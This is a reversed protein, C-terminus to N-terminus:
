LIWGPPNIQHVGVANISKPVIISGNLWSKSNSTLEFKVLNYNPNKYLYTIYDSLYDISTDCLDHIDSIEALTLTAAVAAVSIGVNVVAFASCISVIINCAKQQNDNENRAAQLKTRFNKIENMSMDVIKTSSM